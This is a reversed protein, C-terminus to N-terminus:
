LVQMQMMKQIYFFQAVFSIVCVYEGHAGTLLKGANQILESLQQTGEPYM